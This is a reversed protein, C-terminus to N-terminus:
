SGKEMLCQMLSSPVLYQLKAIGVGSLVNASRVYLQVQIITTVTYPLWRRIVAVLEHELHCFEM